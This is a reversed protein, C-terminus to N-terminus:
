TQSSGENGLDDSGEGVHYSLPRWCIQTSFVSFAVSVPSQMAGLALLPHFQVPNADLRVNRGVTANSYGDQKTKISNGSDNKGSGM